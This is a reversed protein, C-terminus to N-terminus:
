RKLAADLAPDVWWTDMVPLGYRPPTAPRGLRNWYAIRYTDDFYTPIVFYSYLLVRDLAKAAAQNDALTKAGVADELLADIVPSRAGAFNEEGQIDATASSWLSIMPVGAPVMPRIGLFVMDYDKTNMRRVYGPTDMLRVAVDIGARKLNIAFANIVKEINPSAFMIEFHMQEGAANLLKGDKVQWGAEAFLDLARRLNARINGDGNTTPLTFPKTFVEPPLQDRFPELLALETGEPLGTAAWDSNPFYSTIRQYLNYHITKRATEFDYLQTLGERVRVDDFPKHRTNMWFGVFGAPDKNPIAELKLRGERVAPIDFGTSWDASSTVQQYDVLGSKLAEQMVSPDRYYDYRIEGWNQQGVYFPLDKGWFDAVREYTISRGADITKIRYAGSGLPPELTTATFDHTKWYHEPLIPFIGALIPMEPVTNDPSITFKVTYDDLAEAKTISGFRARFRPAGKEMLTNFTFVVDHATIPVGDHFKADRRMKFLSWSRDPAVEITECVVCYYTTLEDSNGALLSDYLLGLGAAPNGKVIMDNLSDFTGFAALRLTGGKPADPNVYDYHKFGPAYKPTEGYTSIAAQPGAPLDQALAPAALLGLALLAGPLLRWRPPPRRLDTM